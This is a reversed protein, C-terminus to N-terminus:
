ILGASIFYVSIFYVWVLLAAAPNPRCPIGGGTLLRVKSRKVKFSTHSDCRLHHVKMGFKSVCRRQNRSNIAIYGVSPCVSLCVSQSVFAISVAGKEITTPMIFKYVVHYTLDTIYNRWLVGRCSMSTDKIGYIFPALKLTRCFCSHVTTKSVGHLIIAMFVTSLVTVWRCEQLCSRRQQLIVLRSCVIHATV